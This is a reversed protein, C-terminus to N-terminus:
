PQSLFPAAQEKTSLILNPYAKLQLRGDVLEFKGPDRGLAPTLGAEAAANYYDDVATQLLEQQLSLTASTPTCDITVRKSSSTGDDDHLSTSLVDDDGIDEEWDNPEFAPNDIDFDAM